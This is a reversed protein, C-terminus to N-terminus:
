KEFWKKVLKDMEGNEKMEKLVNNFAEVQDSGKPFAIASGSEGENEVTTFELDDNAEAYGKAVTDEIIAADLRGAKIEQIIEPIKGLPVIQLGEVEKAADEQISGLQVGVKKGKLDELTKFGSGKKSFITNKADFYIDTFDANTKREETPTMGAMVFDVKKTSLAALLGDFDLNEVQVEFGLKEGIYKAIDVDFGIIENTTVDVDEYPPYDASTGMKLIKKETSGGSEGGNDAAKDNQGCAALLAVMFLAVLAASVFKKM